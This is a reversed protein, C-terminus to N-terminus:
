TPTAKVVPTTHNPYCEKDVYCHVHSHLKLLSAPLETTIPSDMLDKFIKAKSQGFSLLIIQKAKLITQIGMTIAFRPVRDISGFAPAADERTVHHLAVVRTKSNVSSQPENFGIHGSRGIGIIQLDIGGAQVIMDEYENCHLNIKEKVLSGDPIFCNEPLIDIHRFLVDHMYRKYSFMSEVTIPYYEVLNFAIVNKFSLQGEKYCKILESYLDIPSAGTALGLVTKKGQRDNNCILDSIEKAAAKSAAQKSPFCNIKV